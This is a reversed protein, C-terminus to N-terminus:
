NHSEKIYGWGQQQKLIIEMIGDPVVEVGKVLDTQTAKNRKMTAACVKISVNENKVLQEIEDAVVSKDALVLNMSGSYVVLEFESEPYAESMLKVHRVASKHTNEDASTVDFVIKVPNEQAFTITSCVFAIILIINKMVKYKNAQLSIDVVM